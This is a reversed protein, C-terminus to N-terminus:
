PALLGWAPKKSLATGSSGLLLVQCQLCCVDFWAHLCKAHLHTAHTSPAHSPPSLATDSQQQSYTAQRGEIWSLGGPSSLADELCAQLDAVTKNWRTPTSSRRLCSLSRPEPAPSPPPLLRARSGLRIMRSHADPSAGVGSGEQSTLCTTNSLCTRPQPHVRSRAGSLLAPTEKGSGGPGRTPRGPGPHRCDEQTVARRSLWEVAVRRGEGTGWGSCAAAWLDDGDRDGDM